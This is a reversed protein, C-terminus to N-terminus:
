GQVRMGRTAEGTHGVSGKRFVAMVDTHRSFFSGFLGWWLTLPLRRLLAGTQVPDTAVDLTDDLLRGYYRYFRENMFPVLTNTYMTSYFRSLVLGQRRGAEILADASLIHRHYPAHLAHVFDRPRALDIASANPTGIAIIAGDEAVRALADLMLSPSAVHEIVDQAIICDYRDDLARRDRYTGLYEDFGRAGSYGRLQLFRVFQGNGCGYDLIQHSRKLGARRLRALQRAHIADFRWDGPLEHLPYRAYYHDLDVEDRAHISACRGCRWYAFAEGSFLRVNSPVDAEEVAGPPTVRQCVVCGPM